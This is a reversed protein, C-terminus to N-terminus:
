DWIVAGEKEETFKRPMRQPIRWWELHRQFMNLTLCQLLNDRPHKSSLRIYDSSIPHTHIISFVKSLVETGERRKWEGEDKRSPFYQKVQVIAKKKQYNLKGKHFFFRGQKQTSPVQSKNAKHRQNQLWMEDWLPKAIDSELQLVKWHVEVKKLLQIILKSIMDWVPRLSMIGRGSFTLTRFNCPHGM